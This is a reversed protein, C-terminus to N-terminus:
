AGIERNSDHILDNVIDVISIGATCYASCRGCGVCWSEGTEQSIYKFKRYLRHRMRAAKQNRFIEGGAVESFSRLMCGDQTRIRNGTKLDLDVEDEVNFCFCTPCVLNCTGCGVCKEAYSEWVPSDWARSFVDTVKEFGGDIHANFSQQKPIDGDFEPLPFGKMLNQGSETLTELLYGDEIEHLFLDFGGSHNPEGDKLVSNSFHWEDPTYSVGIFLAGQRRTLYQSEAHGSLFNHDLRFVAELDYNHVGLFIANIPEVKSSTTEKGDTSFSFLTEKPPLFYKKISSLTRDYNLIVCKPDSVKGFSFSNIGNKHPAIVNEIKQLHSIWHPIDNHTMFTLPFIQKM